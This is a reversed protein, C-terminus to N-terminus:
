KKPKGKRQPAKSKRDDRDKGKGHGKERCSM